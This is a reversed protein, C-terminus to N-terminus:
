PRRCPWTRRYHEVLRVLHRARELSVRNETDGGLKVSTGVIFADALRWYNAINDPSVGSGIIVKMGHARAVGGIEDVYAVEPESGTSSGTLIVGHVQFGTRKLCEEVVLRADYRSALPLSHKVDVDGFILIRGARLDEYIDLDRVAAAIEHVAPELYGEPALRHECISNVRVFSAGSAYAVSLAEYGSNRLMSIGVPIGVRSVVERAIRTMAAVQAPGARVRYPKDGYNELIVADFGAEEYSKAELVAYEVTEEFSWIKGHSSPYPLRKYGYSGPLPPLHVVGILPKCKEDLFGANM